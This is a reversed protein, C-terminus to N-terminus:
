EESIYIDNILKPFKKIMRKALQFTCTVLISKVLQSFVIRIMLHIHTAEIHLTSFCLLAVHLATEGIQCLIMQGSM